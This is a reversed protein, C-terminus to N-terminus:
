TPPSWNTAQALDTLTDSVKRSASEAVVCERGRKWEFIAGGYDALQSVWLADLLRRALAEVDHSQTIAQTDGIFDPLPEPM